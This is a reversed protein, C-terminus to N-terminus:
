CPIALVNMFLIATVSGELLDFFKYGSIDFWDLLIIHGFLYLNLCSLLYSLSFAINQFNIM